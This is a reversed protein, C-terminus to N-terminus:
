YRLKRPRSHSASHHRGIRLVALSYLGLQLCREQDLGRRSRTLRGTDDIAHEIQDACALAIDLM